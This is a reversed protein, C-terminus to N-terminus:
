TLIFSSTGANSSVYAAKFDNSRVQDYTPVFLLGLTRNSKSHRDAPPSALPHNDQLLCTQPSVSNPNPPNIHHPATTRHDKVLCPDVAGLLTFPLM